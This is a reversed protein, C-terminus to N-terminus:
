LCLISVYHCFDVSPLMRVEKVEGYAGFIQLVEENSVLPDLNFMTLTGQNLNKDSPKAQFFFVMVMGFPVRM